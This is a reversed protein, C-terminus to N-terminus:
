AAEAFAFVSSQPLPAPTLGHKRHIKALLLADSRQKEPTKWAGREAARRCCEAPTVAEMHEPNLCLRNCCTMVVRHGAPIPGKRMEFVVRRALVTRKTQRTAPDYTSKDHMQPYCGKRSVTGQWNLCDGVKKCVARISSFTRPKGINIRKM